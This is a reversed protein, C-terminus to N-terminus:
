RPIPFLTTKCAQAHRQFVLRSRIGFIAILDNSPKSVRDIFLQFDPRAQHLFHLKRPM